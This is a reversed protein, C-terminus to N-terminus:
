LDIITQYIRSLDNVINEKNHREIALVRANNGIKSALEKNDVIEKIYSAAMYPDNAPVLVGTTLHEILTSVGGVNCAIVPVGLLQAECVSNPSNDIYSPHVFVDCNGLAEKIIDSSAIGKPYVSVAELHIGTKFSAFDMENVGYVLWEFNLKLENKLIQATKLLMDAGKYLPNSITTVIIVMNRNTIVQWPRANFFSERLMESCYYYHSKPSYIKTIRKDWETRGMFYNCGAFIRKEREVSTKWGKLQGYNSLLRLPNLGNSRFIDWQSYFPPVLANLCPILLGQLHIITPIHTYQAILGFTRESGFVHIIDPKFDDIVSKFASVHSAEQKSKSFARKFRDQIGRAISIPYYIVNEQEVKFPEDQFFFSIALELNPLKRVEKELSTIWGGGNYGNLDSNYGAQNNTFWLVRM